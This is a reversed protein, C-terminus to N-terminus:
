PERSASRLTDYFGQVGSWSGEYSAAYGASSNVCSVFTLTAGDRQIGDICKAPGIARVVGVLYGREAGVKRASDFWLEEDFQDQQEANISIVSRHPTCFATLCVKAAIVGSGRRAVDWTVPFTFRNGNCTATHPAFPSWLGWRIGRGFVILVLFGLVLGYKKVLKWPDNANKATIEIPKASPSKM